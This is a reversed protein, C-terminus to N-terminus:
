RGRSLSAPVREHQSPVAGPVGTVVMEADKKTQM